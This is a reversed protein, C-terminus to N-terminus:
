VSFFIFLSFLRMSFSPFDMMWMIRYVIGDFKKRTTKFNLGLCLSFIIEFEKSLWIIKKENQIGDIRFVHTLKRRQCISLSSLFGSKKKNTKPISIYWICLWWESLVCESVFNCCYEINMESNNRIISMCRLWRFKNLVVVM